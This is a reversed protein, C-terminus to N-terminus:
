RSSKLSWFKATAFNFLVVLPILACQVYFPDFGTAEVILELTVLNLGISVLSAAFFKAFRAQFQLQEEPKFVWTFNLVYSFMMGLLWSVTLAILHHVHLIRVLVYFVVFTLVFNIAGVIGFRMAELTFRKRDFHLPM